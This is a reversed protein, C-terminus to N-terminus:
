LAMQRGADENFQAMDYKRELISLLATGIIKATKYHPKTPGLAHLIEAIYVRYFQQGEFERKLYKIVMTSAGPKPFM